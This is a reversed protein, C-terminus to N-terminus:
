GSFARITRIIVTDYRMMRINIQLGSKNQLELIIRFATKLVIIVFVQWNKNLIIERFQNMSITTGKPFGVKSINFCLWVHDEGEYGPANWCM